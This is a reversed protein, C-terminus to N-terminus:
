HWGGGWYQWQRGNVDVVISQLSPPNLVPPGAYNISDPAGGGGGGGGGAIQCDLYTEVGMQQKVSMGMYGAATALGVLTNPDCNVTTGNLLACKLYIRVARLQKESLCTFCEAATTLAGSACNIAM